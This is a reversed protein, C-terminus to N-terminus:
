NAPARVLKVDYNLELGAQPDGKRPVFDVILSDKVAFVSDNTLYKDKSDFIQTTLPKYGDYTAIIHIHAPRFPHRDMLELLKGAPGDDPVPYPTPRLCYFSYRGQEDTKFKGRLNFEEQQPDQQEYLGNTSAQWVEVTAGVLPKKTEFDVVQGHMFAMEGEGNPPPTLVINAGNERYPTDARFFPGLIATATPADPAESALTYTIEDVLSELGIVDCVLQGENRKDDSMQGAWNLLKVGAMWEDVTLENERAYDHVHRILGTMLQRFRPTTKPGMSNIVNDTFNPDFRPM